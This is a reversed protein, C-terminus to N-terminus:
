RCWKSPNVPTTNDRIEFYVGPKQLGGTVGSMSIVEDTEVVDGVSKFLRDNHGYLSIHDDGHDIILLLGYGKLYDAFLVRGRFISRVQVSGRTNFLIGESLMGSAAVRAGYKISRTADVPYSLRGKQKVFGGSVLPRRVKSRKTKNNNSREQAQKEQLRELELRKLEAAKAKIKDLLTNLRKRDQQLRKLKDASKEVKDNLKAVNIARKQKAQKLKSEQEQQQRQEFELQQLLGTQRLKLDSVSQIAQQVEQAKKQLAGSMIQRYNNLRGVAYPNEQNLLLKLYNAQRDQYRSRMLQTLARRNETQSDLANVLKQDLDEQESNVKQIKIRTAQLAKDTQLLASESEFLKDQATKLLAKNTNLDRSLVTIEKSIKKLSTAYTDGDDAWVIRPAIALSSVACTFLFNLACDSFIRKVPSPM